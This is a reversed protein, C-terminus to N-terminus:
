QHRDRDRLREAALREQEDDGVDRYLHAAMREQGEHRGLASGDLALSGAADERPEHRRAHEPDGASHGITAGASRQPQRGQHDVVEGREHRVPNRPAGPEVGGHPLHAGPM